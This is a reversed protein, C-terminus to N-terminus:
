GLGGVMRGVTYTVAMALTGGAVNRLVARGVQAGGLRASAAGTIILAVVVVVFTVLVRVSPPTLLIALLPLLAGLTFSVASSFAATWPSALDDEDLHLEADLHAELADNATLEEAVQRALGASLGKQRYIETLENLEAEPMTTLEIKEKAILARETDRQTSVSVYEGAAMSLGGAVLAALGAIFIGGRDATAGAVGVVVGATSVIGDNAGLVGARLWNLRAALGGGQPEAHPSPVHQTAATAPPSSTPGTTM